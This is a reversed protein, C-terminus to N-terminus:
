RTPPPTALQAACTNALFLLFTAVGSSWWPSNALALLAFCVTAGLEGAM